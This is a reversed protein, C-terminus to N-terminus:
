GLPWLIDIQRFLFLILLPPQSYPLIFKTLLQSVTLSLMKYSIHSYM